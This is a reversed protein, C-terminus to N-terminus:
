VAKDALDKLQAVDPARSERTVNKPVIAAITSRLPDLIRLTAVLRHKSPDFEDDENSFTGRVAFGTMLNGLKVRNGALLQGDIENALMNLFYKWLNVDQKTREALSEALEDHGVVGNTQVSASYLRRSTLASPVKKLKFSINSM